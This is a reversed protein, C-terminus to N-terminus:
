RRSPGVHKRSRKRRVKRPKPELWPTGVVYVMAALAIALFTYIFTYATM